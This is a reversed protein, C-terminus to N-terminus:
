VAITLVDGNQVVTYVRLSRTAPGTIVSGSTSFVSNHCPCNIKDSSADYRVICGEHTCVSSLAVFASGTNIVIVSRIIKYNGQTTLSSYDSLTLDIVIPDGSAPGPDTGPDEIPEKTCSQLVSPVLFLLTSGTLVRQILERRNM